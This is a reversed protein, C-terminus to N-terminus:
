RVPPQSRARRFSAADGYGPDAVVLPVDIGWLRTVDIMDLSPQWKEVHGVDTPRSAGRPAAPWRPRM